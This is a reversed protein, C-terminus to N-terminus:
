PTRCNKCMQKFYNPIIKNGRELTIVMLFHLQQHNGQRFSTIMVKKHYIRTKNSIAALEEETQLIRHRKQMNCRNIDVSIRM